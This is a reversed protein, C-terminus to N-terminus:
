LTGEKVAGNVLLKENFQALAGKLTADMVRNGIQLRYGAILDPNIKIAPEVQKQLTQAVRELFVALEADSLARATEVSVQVRGKAADLRTHFASAIAEIYQIRRRVFLIQLFRKVVADLTDGFVNAVVTSKAATRIMPHELLEQLQPNDKLVRVILQLNQDVVEALGHEDAALFLGETYRNTVAGSLM